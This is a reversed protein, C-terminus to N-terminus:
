AMEEIPVERRRRGAPLALVVVTLLALLQISLLGRRVTGDHSISIDGPGPVSFQPLGSVSKQLPISIGNFILRWRSDYKEALTVTGAAPVKDVAGIDNSVLPKKVGHMDTFLVRSSSGVIRWVIGDKTSSTRTFGGQGDIARVLVEDIPNEMYLYQIGNEGIQKSSTIGAGSLLDRIAVQVELSPPVSVDPEGLTLDAGRSIFYQIQNGSKRVVM